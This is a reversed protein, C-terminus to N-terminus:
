EGDGETTASSMYSIALSTEEPAASSMHFHLRCTQCTIEMITSSMKRSAEEKLIRAKELEAQAQQRIMKANAFEVEAIEIQRKAERRAEDAYAKEAIALELQCEDNPEKNSGISLKLFASSPSSLHLELDHHDPLNININRDSNSSLIPFGRLPTAMQFSHDNSTSAGTYSVSRSYPQLLLPPPLPPVVPQLQDSRMQRLNCTDQHEIFSEVRSFVRGCDCSHGRTGCTKLHAKFDSHVAYAKSCKDCVWQKQNSHKRRFHKKIGVLDGLAHCPDHHLCTPEPCVFVKKKVSEATEARKLLKWPVKHRRRHMQLNQDRQFGQNCIECVYRDSELLTKPSLSVM